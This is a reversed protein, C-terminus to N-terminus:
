EERVIVLNDIISYYDNECGFEFRKPSYSWTLGERGNFYQKVTSNDLDHIFKYHGSFPMSMGHGLINASGTGNSIVNDFEIIYVGTDSGYGFYVNQYSPSKSEFKFGNSVKTVTIGGDATYSGAQKNNSNSWWYEPVTWKATNSIQTGKLTVTATIVRPDNTTLLQSYVGNANTLSEWTQTPRFSELKVVLPMDAVQIPQNNAGMVTATITNTAQTWDGYRSRFSETIPENFTVQIASPNIIPITHKEGNWGGIQVFFPYESFYVQNFSVFGHSDSTSANSIPEWSGDDGVFAGIGIWPEDFYDLVNCSLTGVTGSILYPPYELNIIKYGVSIHITEESSYSEGDGQWLARIPHLGDSLGSLSLTVPVDQTLSVTDLLVPTGSIDDYIKVSKATTLDNGCTLTLTLDDITTNPAYRQEDKNFVLESVFKTPTPVNFKINESSGLCNKNGGYRVKITHDVDYLLYLGTSDVIRSEGQQTDSYDEEEYKGIVLKGNIWYVGKENWDEDIIQAMGSDAWPIAYLLEDDCYIFLTSNGLERLVQIELGIHCYNIHSDFDGFDTILTAITDTTRAYAEDGKLVFIKQHISSDYTTNLQVM